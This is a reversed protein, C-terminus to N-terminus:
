GGDLLAPHAEVLREHVVLTDGLLVVRKLRKHLDEQGCRSPDSAWPLVAALLVHLAVVRHEPRGALHVAHEVEHVGAGHAQELAQGLVVLVPARGRGHVAVAPEEVALGDHAHGCLKVAHRQLVALEEAPGLLLPPPQGALPREHHRLDQLSDHLLLGTIAVGHLDALAGRRPVPLVPCADVLRGPVAHLRGQRERPLVGLVGEIVTDRVVHADHSVLERVERLPEGGPQLVELRRADQAVQLEVARRWYSVHGLQRAQGRQQLSVQLDGEVRVRVPVPLDLAALDGLRELKRADEVDCLGELIILLGGVALLLEHADAVLRQHGGEALSVQLGNLSVESLSVLIAIAGEVPVLQHAEQLSSNRLVQVQLLHVADRGGPAPARVPLEAAGHVQVQLRDVRHHGEKDPLM